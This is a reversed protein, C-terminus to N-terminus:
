DFSFYIYPIYPYLVPFSAISTLKILHIQFWAKDLIYKASTVKFQEIKVVRNIVILPRCLCSM